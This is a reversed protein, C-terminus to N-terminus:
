RCIPAASPYPYYLSPVTALDVDTAWVGGCVLADLYDAFCPAPWGTDGVSGPTITCSSEPVEWYHRTYGREFVDGTMRESALAEDLPTRGLGRVSSLTWM